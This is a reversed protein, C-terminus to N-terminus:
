AEGKRTFNNKLFGVTIDAVEPVSGIRVPPGWAGAGSSVIIQLSGTELHGYDIKFVRSTILNFPFIQGKHTHGSLQLDVGATEAEELELISIGM